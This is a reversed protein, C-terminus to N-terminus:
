VAIYMSRVAIYFGLKAQENGTPRIAHVV